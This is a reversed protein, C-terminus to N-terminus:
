GNQPIQRVVDELPAPHVSPLRSCSSRLTLVVQNVGEKWAVRSVLDVRALLLPQSRWIHLDKPEGQRWLCSPWELIFLTERKCLAERFPLCLALEKPFWSQKVGEPLDKRLDLKQRELRLSLRVERARKPIGNYKSPNDIAFGGSEM